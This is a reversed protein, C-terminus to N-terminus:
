PTKDDAKEMTVVLRHDESLFEQKGMDFAVTFLWEEPDVIVATPFNKSSVRWTFEEGPQLWVLETLPNKAQLTIPTPMQGSGCNKIRAVVEYETLDEDGNEVISGTAELVRYAPYGQGTRFWYDIFWALSKVEDPASAGNGVEDLKAGWNANRARCEAIAQEILEPTLLEKRLREKLSVLMEQWDDHGLILYLMQFLPISYSGDNSLQAGASIVSGTSREFWEDRSLHNTKHAVMALFRSGRPTFDRAEFGRTLLNANRVQAQLERRREVPTRNMAPLNTQQGGSENEVLIRRNLGKMRNESLFYSLDILHKSANPGIGALDETQLLDLFRGEFNRLERFWNDKEDYNYQENVRFDRRQFRRHYDNIRRLRYENVSLIPLTRDSAVVQLSYFEGLVPGLSELLQAEIQEYRKPAIYRLNVLGDKLEHIVYDGKTCTVIRMHEPNQEAPLDFVYSFYNEKQSITPALPAKLIDLETAARLELTTPYLEVEKTIFQKDRGEREAKVDNILRYGQTTTRHQQEGSLSQQLSKKPEASCFLTHAQGDAFPALQEGKIFCYVGEPVFDLEEDDISISELQYGFRQATSLILTQSPEFSAIVLELETQYSDPAIIQKEGLLEVQMISNPQWFNPDYRENSKLLGEVGGEQWASRFRQYYPQAIPAVGKALFFVILSGLILHSKWGLHPDARLGAVIKLYTPIHFWRRGYHKFVKRQPETRRLHYCALQLFILSFLMSLLLHSWDSQSTFSARGAEFLPELRQWYDANMLSIFPFFNYAETDGFSQHIIPSEALFACGILIMVLVIVSPIMGKVCTRVWITISLLCCAGPLLFFLIMYFLPPLPFFIGYKWRLALGVPFFLVAFLFLLSFLGALMQGLILTFTNFPKVMLVQHMGTSRIRGIPFMGAFATAVLCLSLTFFLFGENLPNFTQSQIGIIYVVIDILCALALVGKFRLSKVQMLFEFRVIAALAPMHWGTAAPLHVEGEVEVANNAPLRAVKM